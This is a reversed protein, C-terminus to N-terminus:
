TAQRLIRIYGPMYNGAGGAGSEVVSTGTSTTARISYTHTAASPTLRRRALFPWGNNQAAPNRVIGMFGISSSGDFLCILCLAGATSPTRVYPFFCEVDIVTSGDFAIATATVITDASAEATQTVNVASTKEIRDLEVESAKGWQLGASQGSAAYLTQGNSGVSTIAPTDNASAGIIDGKAAVISELLYQTHDDDTLGTLAGHDTVGGSSLTAWTSWASADSQYVLDHDTCSYLTGGGVATAAPRAAHTGTLLMGPM